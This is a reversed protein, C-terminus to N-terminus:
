NCHHQLPTCLMMMSFCLIVDFKRTLVMFRLKIAKKDIKINSYLNNYCQSLYLYAFFSLIFINKKFSILLIFYVNLFIYYIFYFLGNKLLFNFLYFLIFM